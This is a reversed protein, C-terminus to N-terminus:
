EPSNPSVIWDALSMSKGDPFIVSVGDSDAVADKLSQTAPTEDALVERIRNAQEESVVNEGTKNNKQWDRQKVKAWTDFIADNLEIDMLASFHCAYVFLDGLGDEISDTKSYWVHNEARAMRYLETFQNFSFMHFLTHMLGAAFIYQQEEHEEATGRIGQESKLQHHCMKGVYAMTRLLIHSPIDQEDAINSFKACIEGLEEIMGLLPRYSPTDGFNRQAWEAVEEQTQPINVLTSAEDDEATAYEVLQDLLSLHQVNPLEQLWTRVEDFGSVANREPGVPLGDIHIQFRHYGLEKVTILKNDTTM